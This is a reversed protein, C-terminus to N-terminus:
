LIAGPRVSRRSWISAELERVREELENPGFHKRDKIDRLTQYEWREAHSRYTFTESIPTVGRKRIRVRWTVRGHRGVM